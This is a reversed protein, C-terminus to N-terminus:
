NVPAVPKIVDTIDTPDLFNSEDPALPSWIEGPKPHYLFAHQPKDLLDSRVTILCGSGPVRACDDTTWFYTKKVACGSLLLALGLAALVVGLAVFPLVGAGERAREPPPKLSPVRASM